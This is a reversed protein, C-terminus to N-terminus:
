AIRDRRPAELVFVGPRRDRRPAELVFVGPRRPRGPTMLGNDLSQPASWRRYIKPAFRVVCLSTQPRRTPAQEPALSNARGAGCNKVSVRRGAISSVHGFGNQSKVKSRVFFASLLSAMFD